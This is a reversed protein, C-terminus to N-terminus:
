QGLVYMSLVLFSSGLVYMSLVFVFSSRNWSSRGIIIVRSFFDVTWWHSLNDDCMDGPWHVPFPNSFFVLLNHRCHLHIFNEIVMMLDQLSHILYVLSLLPPQRSCSPPFPLFLPTCGKWSSDAVLLGLVLCRSHTAHLPWAACVAAPLQLSSPQSAARWGPRFAMSLGVYEEDLVCLNSFRGAIKTVSPLLILASGGGADM